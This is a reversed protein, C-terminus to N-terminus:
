LLNFAFASSSVPSLLPSFNYKRLDEDSHIIGKLNTFSKVRDSLETGFKKNPQLERGLLGQFGAFPLMLVREKRKVASKILKSSTKSFLDTVDLIQLPSDKPDIDRKQLEKNFSLQDPKRDQTLGPPRHIKREYFSIGFAM